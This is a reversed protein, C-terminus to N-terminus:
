IHHPPSSVVVLPNTLVNYLCAYDISLKFVVLETKLINLMM